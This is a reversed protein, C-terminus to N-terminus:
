LPRRVRDGPIEDARVGGSRGEAIAPRQAYKIWPPADLVMPPVATASPFVISKLVPAPTDTMPVPVTAFM